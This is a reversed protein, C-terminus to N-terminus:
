AVAGGLIHDIREVMTYVVENSVRIVEPESVSRPANQFADRIDKLYDLALVLRQAVVPCINDKHVGDAMLDLDIDRM